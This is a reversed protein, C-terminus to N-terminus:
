IGIMIAQWNLKDNCVHQRGHMARVWLWTVIVKKTKANQVINESIKLLEPSIEKNLISGTGELKEM